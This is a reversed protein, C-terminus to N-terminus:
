SSRGFIVKDLSKNAMFEYVLFKELEHICYGLLKTLNQHQLMAIHKVENEFEEVGQRAVNQKKM